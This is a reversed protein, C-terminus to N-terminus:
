APLSTPVAESELDLEVECGPAGGAEEGIRESSQIGHAAARIRASAQKGETYANTLMVVARQLRNEFVGELLDLQREVDMLAAQLNDMDVSRAFQLHMQYLALLYPMTMSYGVIIVHRRHAEAFAQRCVAYAADPVSALAWPTTTTPDIYHAVERVRKEVEKEVQSALQARRAPEVDSASLEELASTSTWKSDLPMVKGGPLRLGFEVVKGSVWLNRTIMDPPLHRLAEELINEGAVGRTSSGAIVAELRRLSQRAEDEVQQRAALASRFGEFASQTQVLRERLEASRSDQTQSGVALQARVEALDRAQLEARRTLTLVLMAVGGVAAGILVLLLAFLLEFPSMHPM